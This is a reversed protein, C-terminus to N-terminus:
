VPFRRQYNVWTFDEQYRIYNDRWLRYNIRLYKTADPFSKHIHTIYLENCFPLLQYYISEGGIVWVDKDFTYSLDIASQTSNVFVLNDKNNTPDASKSLVIHVRNSLLKSNLDGRFTNMGMILVGNTTLAKFRKLDEKIPYILKNDKGLEGNRGIAAILKM